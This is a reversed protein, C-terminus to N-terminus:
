DTIVLTKYKPTHSLKALASAKPALPGSNLDRYGSKSFIFIPECLLKNQIHSKIMIGLISGLINPYRWATLCRIKIGDNTPEFGVVGTIPFSAIELLAVHFKFIDSTVLIFSHFQRATSLQSHFTLRFM